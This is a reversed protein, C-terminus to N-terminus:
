IVSNKDTLKHQRSALAFLQPKPPTLEYIDKKHQSAILAHLIELTEKPFEVYYTYDRKQTVGQQKTYNISLAAGIM